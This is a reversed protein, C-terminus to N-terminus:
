GELKFAMTNWDFASGGLEGAIICWGMRLDDRMTMATEFPVGSRTLILVERFPV